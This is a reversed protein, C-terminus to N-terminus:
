KKLYPSRLNCEPIEGLPTSPSSWKVSVHSPTGGHYERWRVEIDVWQGATMRMPASAEYQQVMSAGGAVRHLVQSGGVFLWAENDCSLHFTYAESHDAKIQGRWTASKLPWACGATAGSLPVDYPVGFFDSNGFPLHLTSDVRSVPTGEWDGHAYYEGLIGCSGFAGGSCGLGPRWYDGVIEEGRAPDYPNIGAPSQLEVRGDYFLVNVLSHHRPAIDEGWTALDSGEYEMVDVNADLMVVKGSDWNSMMRHVCMNVGYCIQSPSDGVEPCVYLSQQKDLYAGLGHLVTAVDPTRKFKEQHHQIAIGIQRLNNACHTARASSRSAMVAPILLSTLIGIVALVVLLEILTFATRRLCM